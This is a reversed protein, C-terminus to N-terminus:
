IIIVLSGNVNRRIMRKMLPVFVNFNITMNNALSNSFPMIAVGNTDAPACSTSKNVLGNNLGRNSNHLLNPKHSIYEGAHLPTNSISYHTTLKLTYHTTLPPSHTIEVM